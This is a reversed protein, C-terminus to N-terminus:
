TPPSTTSASRAGTWRRASRKRPSGSGGGKLAIRLMGFIWGHGAAAAVLTAPMGFVLNALLIAALMGSFAAVWVRAKLVVLVFFLTLVPVAAVLTSLLWNGFPDYNQPWTMTPM